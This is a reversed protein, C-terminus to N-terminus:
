RQRQETSSDPCLVSGGPAVRRTHTEPSRAGTAETAPCSLGISVPCSLGISAPCSLGISSPDDSYIADAQLTHSSASLTRGLIVMGIDSISNGLIGIAFRFACHLRRAMRFHRVLNGYSSRIQEIVQAHAVVPLVALSM